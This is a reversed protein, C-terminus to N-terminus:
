RVVDWSMAGPKPGAYPLNGVKRAGYKAAVTSRTKNFHTARYQITKEGDM